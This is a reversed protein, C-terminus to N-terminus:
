TSSRMSKPLFVEELAAWLMPNSGGKGGAADQHARAISADLLSGGQILGYRYRKSSANWHGAKAWNAFRNYVTKWNGYRDPLDRWPSGTKMLWVVANVFSRDGRNSRRGHRPLLPEIKRWQVDTLEHRHMFRTFRWQARACTESCFCARRTPPRGSHSRPPTLSRVSRGRETALSRDLSWAVLAAPRRPVRGGLAGHVRAARGNAHPRRPASGADARWRRADAKWL